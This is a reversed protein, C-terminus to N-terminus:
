VRFGSGYVRFEWGGVGVGVGELMTLLVTGLLTTRPRWSPRPRLKKLDDMLMSGLLPVKVHPLASQSAQSPKRGAAADRAKASTNTGERV